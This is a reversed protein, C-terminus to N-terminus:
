NYRCLGKQIYTVYGHLLVQLHLDCPGFKHRGYGHISNLFVMFKSPLVILEIKVLMKQFTGNGEIIFTPLLSM